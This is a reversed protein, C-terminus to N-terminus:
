RSARGAPGRSPTAPASSSARSSPRPSGARSTTRRSTASRRAQWAGLSLGAMARAGANRASGVAGLIWGEASRVARDDPEGTPRGNLVALMGLVGVFADFRDEGDARDGFGDRLDRAVAPALSVGARALWRRVAAANAARAARSRKGGDRRAFRVGLWGYVEAPSTEALVIDATALLPALAGDFPWIAARVARDRVLPALVNRWGHIAAKGPQKGGVTWFLNGADPRAGNGRECERLLEQRTLELRALWPAQPKEGRARCTMPYFPRGPSVEDLADAPDYFRSWRGAGLRGLAERFAHIGARSAYARPLGIPFDFGLLVPPTALAADRVRELFAAVDGAPEVAVVRHRGRTRVAVAIWRKRPHSGWDAHVVLRPSAIASPCGARIRARRRSERDLPRVAGRVRGARPAM